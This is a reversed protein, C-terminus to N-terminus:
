VGPVRILRTDACTLSRGRHRQGSDVEGISVRQSYDDVTLSKM